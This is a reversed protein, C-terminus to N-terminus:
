RHPSHAFSMVNCLGIQEQHLFPETGPLCDHNIPSRNQDLQRLLAGRFHGSCLVERSPALPLAALAQGSLTPLLVRLLFIRSSGDCVAHHSSLIFTRHTEQQLLVGRLHPAQGPRDYSTGQNKVEIALVVDLGDGVSGSDVESGNFLAARTEIRCQSHLDGIGLHQLNNESNAAILHCVEPTPPNRRHQSDDVNAGAGRDPNASRLWLRRQRM